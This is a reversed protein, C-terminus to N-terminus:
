LSEIEIPLVMSAAERQPLLSKIKDCFGTLTGM